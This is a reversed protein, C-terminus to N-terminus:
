YSSLFVSTTIAVITFTGEFHISMKGSKQDTHDQEKDVHRRFLCRSKHQKLLQRAKAKSCSSWRDLYSSHTRIAYMMCLDYGSSCDPCERMGVHDLGLVHGLEHASSKVGKLLRRNEQEDDPRSAGFPYVIATAQYGCMSGTLAAGALASGLQGLGSIILSADPTFNVSQFDSVRRIKWIANKSYETLETVLPERKGGCKQKTRRCEEAADEIADDLWKNSDEEPILGFGVIEVDLDLQQLLASAGNAVQFVYKETRIKDGSFKKLLFDDGAVFLEIVAEQTEEQLSRDNQPYEPM